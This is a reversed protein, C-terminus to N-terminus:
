AEKRRPADTTKARLRSGGADFFPTQTVTAAIPRGAASVILRSGPWAHTTRVYGLALTKNVSYGLASSTVRGVVSGRSLADGEDGAEPGSKRRPRQTAVDGVAHIPDGPNAASNGDLVLGVWREDIGQEQVRLLAERGIFERKDFRIWRDLGVHFPTVEDSIDPGYLPFAKEIRLSQMAGVGYPLLGFEKGKRLLFEWLAGAEEAPIYLEYGLEGTYGSRSLLLEVENIQASGFRFFPLKALDVGQAVTQLFERSRPGQIVALAVAASIDTIYTSSGMANDSIWRACAKRPASSTVVMFHEDHFKYITVDDVIGGREDCLTSYRMQGPEMSRIENVALRSLLREAGPGKVDVEGMSSIDQMGVNTRTNIHEQAPSTYADPFLYEGGGKVMLGAHRLHYDYLPSRREAM